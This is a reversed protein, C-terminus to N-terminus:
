RPELAMLPLVRETKEAYQRWRDDLAVFRQWVQEREDGELERARVPITEKQVVIAAEPHAKLNHYWGPHRPAGMMSGCVVYGEGHRVFALPSERRVGSKAGVHRLVLLSGDDSGGGFRGTTRILMAHLRNFFLMLSKGM